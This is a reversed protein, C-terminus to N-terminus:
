PPLHFKFNLTLFATSSLTITGPSKSFSISLLFVVERQALEWYKLYTQM